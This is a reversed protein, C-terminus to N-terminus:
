SAWLLTRKLFVWRGNRALFTYRLWELEAAARAPRAGEGYVDVTATDGSVAMNGTLTFLFRESDPAQVRRSGRFVATDAFQASAGDRFAALLSRMRAAHASDAVPTADGMGQLFKPYVVFGGAFEQRVREGTARALMLEQADIAADPRAAVSSANSHICAGLLLATLPRISRIRTSV